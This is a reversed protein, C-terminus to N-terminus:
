GSRGAQRRVDRGTAAADPAQGTRGKERSKGSLNSGSAPVDASLRLSRSCGSGDSASLVISRSEPQRELANVCGYRKACPLTM